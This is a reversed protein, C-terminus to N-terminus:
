RHEILSITNVQYSGVLRGNQATLGGSVSILDGVQLGSMDGRYLLVLNGGFNDVTDPTAYHIVWQGDQQGLQGTVWTYDNEHGIKNVFKPLIVSVTPAPATTAVPLINNAPGQQYKAPLVSTPPMSHILPPESYVPQSAVRHGGLNDENIQLSGYNNAIDDSRGFVGPFRNQIRVWIPVKPEPPIDEKAHVGRLRDMLGFGLLGGRSTPEQSSKCNCPRGIGDAPNEIVQGDSAQSAWISVTWLILTHGVEM